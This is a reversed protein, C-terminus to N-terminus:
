GDVVVREGASVDAIRELIQDSADEDPRLRFRWTAADLARLTLTPETTSYNWSGQWPDDDAKRWSAHVFWEGEWGAPRTIEVTGGGEITLLRRSLRDAELELTEEAPPLSGQANALTVSLGVKGAPLEIRYRGPAIAQLRQDGRQIGRDPTRVAWDLYLPVDPVSGDPYVVDLELTGTALPPLPEAPADAEPDTALPVRGTLRVFHQVTGTGSALTPAEWEVEEYGPAEVTGYFTARAVGPTRALFVPDLGFAVEGQGRGVWQSLDQETGDELELRVGFIGSARPSSSEPTVVRLRVGLTRTAVWEAPPDGPTHRRQADLEWGPDLGYVLLKQVPLGTFRVRGDADTTARSVHFDSDPGGLRAADARLAVQTVSVHGIPRDASGALMRLGAVPLGTRDVVRGELAEGRSLQVLVADREDSPVVGLRHARLFGNAVVGLDLRLPLGRRGGAWASAPLFFRGNADTDARARVADEAPTGAPLDDASLLYATAGAVGEGAPDVVRGWLGPGAAELSASAETEPARRLAEDPVALQVEPPRNVDDPSAPEVAPARSAVPEVPRPSAFPIQWLFVVAATAALLIGLAKMLTMLTLTTLLSGSAATTSVPSSQALPLLVASWAAWDRGDSAELRERVLELGRRVRWRVTDQPCGEDAAIEATTRDEFYRLLLTRRFPEPLGRVTSAVREAVEARELLEATSPLAEARAAVRERRLRRATTRAQRRALRTAVATWWARRDGDLPAGRREEALLTEQVLDDAAQPDAVLAGALRSLWAWDDAISTDHQM